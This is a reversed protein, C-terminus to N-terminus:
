REVIDFYFYRESMEKFDMPDVGHKARLAARITVRKPLSTRPASPTSQETTQQVITGRM